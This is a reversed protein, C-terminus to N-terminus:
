PGKVPGPTATQARRSGWLVAMEPQAREVDAGSPLPAEHNAVWAAIDASVTAGEKDRLLLHYGHKYFALRSDDRRPMVAIADRVPEKPVIKDGLGHLMLYPMRLREAADCAADMLDLLGYGLDFRPQRIMLPDKRLKEMTKPNDTPQFDISTPGAPMWPILHAFFSLAGSMLPGFSARSRLAPASLILGDGAIGRDAAVLAVAGGMSEGAIFLPVGPYKARLLAAVAKADDVLADTGPWRGRTPSAGFGRQDYAYTTIGDKAWIEAPEEFANRYDGFGHLGLIVAKPPGDAAPWVALPLATGDAAVYRDKELAPARVSVGAPVVTPACAALM